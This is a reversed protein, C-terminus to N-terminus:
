AAARYVIYNERRVHSLHLTEALTEVAAKVGPWYDGYDDWLVIGGPRVLKMALASDRLCADYSHGADVLVLGMQSNLHSLDITASDGIILEIRDRIDRPANLFPERPVALM